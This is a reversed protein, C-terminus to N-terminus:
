ACFEMVKDRDLIYIHALWDDVDSYKMVSLPLKSVPAFNEKLWDMVYQNAGNWVYEISGPVGFEKRLYSLLHFLTKKGYGRHMFNKETYWSTIQWVGSDVSIDCRCVHDEGLYANAEYMKPGLMTVEFRIESM